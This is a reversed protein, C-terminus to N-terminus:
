LIYYIYPSNSIDCDCIKDAGNRVPFQPFSFDVREVGYQCEPSPFPVVAIAELLNQLDWLGVIPNTNGPYYNESM